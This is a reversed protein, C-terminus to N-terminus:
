RLPSNLGSGSDWQRPVANIGGNFITGNWIRVWVQSGDPQIQAYWQTNMADTGLYNDPNNAVAELLARHEATDSFHGPRDAFMHKLQSPKSSLRNYGGGSGAAGGGKKVFGRFYKVYTDCFAKKQSLHNTKAYDIVIIKGEMEEFPTGYCIIAKPKIRHLM